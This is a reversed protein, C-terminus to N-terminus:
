AERGWGVWGWGKKGSDALSRVDYVVSVCLQCKLLILSGRGPYQRQFEVNGPDPSQLFM